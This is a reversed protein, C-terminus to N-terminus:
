MCIKPLHFWLSFCMIVKSDDSVIFLIDIKVATVRVM